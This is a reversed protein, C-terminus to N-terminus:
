RQSKPIRRIYKIIIQGVLKQKNASSESEERINRDKHVDVFAHFLDKKRVKRRPFLSQAKGCPNDRM